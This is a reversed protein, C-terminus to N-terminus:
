QMEALEHSTPPFQGFLFSSYHLTYAAFPVPSHASAACFHSSLSVPTSRM